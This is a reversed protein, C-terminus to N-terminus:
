VYCLYMIADDLYLYRCNINNLKRQTSWVWYIVVAYDMYVHVTQLSKEVVISVLHSSRETCCQMSAYFSNMWTHGWGLFIVHIFSHIGNWSNVGCKKWLVLLEPEGYPREFTMKKKLMLRKKKRLFVLWVTAKQLCRLSLHSQFYDPSLSFIGWQTLHNHELLFGIGELFIMLDLVYFVRM